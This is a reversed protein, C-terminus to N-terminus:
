NGIYVSLDPQAMKISVDILIDNTWSLCIKKNSPLQMSCGRIAYLPRALSAAAHPPAATLLPCRYASGIILKEEPVDADPAM